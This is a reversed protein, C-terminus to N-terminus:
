TAEDETDEDPYFCYECKDCYAEIGCTELWKDKLYGKLEVARNGCKPCEILDAIIEM